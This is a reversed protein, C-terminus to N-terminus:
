SLELAKEPTKEYLNKYRIYDPNDVSIRKYCEALLFYARRLRHQEKSQKACKIAQKLHQIAPLLQNNEIYAEAQWTNFLSLHVIIKNRKALNLATRCYKIGESPNQLKAIVFGYASLIYPKLINSQVLEAYNLAFRLLARAQNYQCSAILSHALYLSVCSKTFYDKSKELLDQAKSFATFSRSINGLEAYALALDSYLIPAPEGLLGLKSHNTELIELSKQAHYITEEYHGLDFHIHALRANERICTEIDQSLNFALIEESIRKARLLDGKIWFYVGQFSLTQKLLGASSLLDKNKLLRDITKKAKSFNGLVFLSELSMFQLNQIHKDRHFSGNLRSITTLAENIYDLAARHMALRNAEQAARKACLYMLTSNGTFGAHYSMLQYINNKKNSSLNKLTAIIKNHLSVRTSKPISSYIVKQMLEHSFTWYTEPFGIHISAIGLRELTALAEIIEKRGQQGTEVLIDLDIRLGQVSAIKAINIVSADISELTAYLIDAISEPTHIDLHKLIESNTLGTAKKQQVWRVYEKIFYPNGKTLRCIKTATAVSILREKDLIEFLQMSQGLSLPRLKFSQTSEMSSTLFPPMNSRSTCLIRTESDKIERLLAEIYQLEDERAWHLDELFLLTKKSTCLKSFIKALVLTSIKLRSDPVLNDWAENQPCDHKLIECLCSYLLNKDQVIDQLSYEKIVQMLNEPGNPLLSRGLIFSFHNELISQPFFNIKLINPFVKPTIFQVIYETLYTKGLGPGAQIWILRSSLSQIHEVINRVEITRVPTSAVLDPTPSNSVPNKRSVAEYLQIDQDDKWSFNYMKEFEFFREALVKSARSLVIHNPKAQKMIKDTIHVAEGTVKYRSGYSERATRSFIVEGTNIGIRVGLLTKFRIQLERTAEIIKQAASLAQIAHGEYNEEIGFLCMLGDGMVQNVIGKYQNCIDIQTAIVADFITQADEVDLKKLIESSQVIDVFMLTIQRREFVPFFNIEESM